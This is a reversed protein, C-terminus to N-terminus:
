AGSDCMVTVEHNYWGDDQKDIMKGLNVFNGQNRDLGDICFCFYSCPCENLWKPRRQDSHTKKFQM